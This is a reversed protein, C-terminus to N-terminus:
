DDEEEENGSMRKVLEYLAIHLGSVPAMYLIKAFMGNTFAGMGEQRPIMRL